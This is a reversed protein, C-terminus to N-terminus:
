SLIKVEFMQVPIINQQLNEKETKKKTKKKRKKKKKQTQPEFRKLFLNSKSFNEVV